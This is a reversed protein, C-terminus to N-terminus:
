SGSLLDFYLIKVSLCVLLLSLLLSKFVFPLRDQYPRLFYGFFSACIFVGLAVDWRILGWQNWRVPYGSVLFCLCAGLTTCVVNANATPALQKPSVVRLLIMAPSLIVGSGVGTFGSTMGALVGAVMSFLKERLGWCPIEYKKSLFSSLLTKFAVLVLVIMLVMLIDEPNWRQVFWASVIAVLASVPGMLVVVPWRILKQGYFKHFRYTNELVILFVAFLSTAVSEHVSIAFFWPLLPVLLVGGGLGLFVSVLSVFLGMLPISILVMVQM